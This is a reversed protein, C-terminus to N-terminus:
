ELPYTGQRVGLGLGKPPHPPTIERQEAVLLKSERRRLLTSVCYNCLARFVGAPLIGVRQFSHETNFM